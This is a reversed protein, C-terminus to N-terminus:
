GGSFRIRLVRTTQDTIKFRDDIRLGAVWLIRKESEVVWIREKGPSGIKADILLRAVKKKKRMGLPYLYDGKRWHRLVLPMEVDRMDIWAIDAGEDWGSREPRDMLCFAFPGVQTEVGPTLGDVVLLRENQHRKEVVVLWGRNRIVRHSEGDVHRGSEADLLRVVEQVQGPNFGKESLIEWLVTEMAPQNKLGNVPIQLEGDVERVLRHLIRDLSQRVLAEAERFRRIDGALQERVGPFLREVAPIIHLRIHNRTYKDETNSSDEVWTLGKRSAYQEIDKRSAFLLPRAINGHLPLIGRMGAIGTGKFLNLLMTEVNDDGHHATLLRWPKQGPGRLGEMLSRFWDYRLTRAAMQISCRLKDAEAQTNFRKVHVAVGIREGLERVFAEDRDSEGGRLCFNCHAIEFRFGADTLLNVLSVSDMGGSVAVLLRTGTDFLRERTIYRIFDSSLTDNEAPLPM